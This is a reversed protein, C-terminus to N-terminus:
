RSQGTFTWRSVLMAPCVYAGLSSWWTPVARRERSLGAIRSFADLISQTWRLNRVGSKVKGGDILFLGDRTLGTMMARPPDLLGNVYHFRTVLLGRDVSGILEDMSRDGPEVFLDGAAAAGLLDEGLPPAHGTSAVGARAASLSDHVCACPVGRDIITVRRKPVGEADFPVPVHGGAPSPGDDVITLAESMVREGIRGCLFSTGDEMDRASFSTMGLWELVESVSAPELVVDYEGPPLSVPGRGREAKDCAAEGVGAHDIAALDGATASAYGAADGDAAILELKAAGRQAHVRVGRSNAVADEFLTESCLGALSLNRARARDLIPSLSAARREPGAPDTIMGGTHPEAPGPFGRFDPHEPAVAAIAAARRICERVADSSIDDTQATGLRSGLAVRARLIRESVEMCQTLANNALRSTGRERGSFSLEVEDAGGARIAEDLRSLLADRGIM